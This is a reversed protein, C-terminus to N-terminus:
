RRDDRADHCQDQAAAEDVVDKGLETFRDDM